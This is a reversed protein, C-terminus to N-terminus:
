LKICDVESMIMVVNRVPHLYIGTTSKITLSLISNSLSRRYGCDVWGGGLLFHICGTNIHICPYNNKSTINVNFIRVEPLSHLKLDPM